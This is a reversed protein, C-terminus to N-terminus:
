PPRDCIPESLTRDDVNARIKALATLAVSPDLLLVLPGFRFRGAPHAVMMRADKAVRASCRQDDVVVQARSGRGTLWDVPIVYWGGGGGNNSRSILANAGKSESDM